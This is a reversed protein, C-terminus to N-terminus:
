VLNRCMQNDKKSVVVPVSVKLAPYRIEISKQYQGTSFHTWLM